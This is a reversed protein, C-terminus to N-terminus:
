RSIYISQGFIHQGVRSHLTSSRRNHASCVPIQLHEDHSHPMKRKQPNLASLFPFPAHSTFSKCMARNSPNKRPSLPVHVHRRSPNLIYSSDQTSTVYHTPQDHLRTGTDSGAGLNSTSSKNLDTQQPFKTFWQFAIHSHTLHKYLTCM